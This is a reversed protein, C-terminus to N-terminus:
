NAQLPNGGTNPNQGTNQGPYQGTNQGPYQGTNQGTQSPNTVKGGKGPNTDQIVQQQQQQQQQGPGTINGSPGIFFVDGPGASVSVYGSIEPPCTKKSAIIYCGNSISIINTAMGKNSIALVIWVALSFLLIQVYSSM